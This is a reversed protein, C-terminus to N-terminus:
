NGACELYATITHQPLSELTSLDLRLETEAGDGEVRLAYGDPDIMPTPSHNRVFFLENPTIFGDILELRTELNTVRQIFPSPDKAWRPPQDSERQSAIAAEADASSGADGARDCAALWAAAPGVSAARVFDRRTLLATEIRRKM